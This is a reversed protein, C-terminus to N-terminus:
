IPIPPLKSSPADIRLVALDQSPAYGVLQAPYSSHDALTVRAANGGSIVHFNTVVHGANDWIFGSGTGQPMEFVNRTRLDMRQSLTTIFVVCPSVSRFLEITAKEDSALDGRPTIPRPATAPMGWNGFLHYLLVGAALGVFCGLLLMIFRARPAPPGPRPPGHDFPPVVIRTM